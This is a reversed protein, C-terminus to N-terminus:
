ENIEREMMQKTAQLKLFTNSLYLFHKDNGDAVVKAATLTLFPFLNLTTFVVIPLRFHLTDLECLKGADMLEKIRIELCHIVRLSRRLVKPATQKATATNPILGILYNFCPVIDELKTTITFFM